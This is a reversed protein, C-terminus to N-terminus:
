TQVQKMGIKLKNIFRIITLSIGVAAEAWCNENKKLSKAAPIYEGKVCCHYGDCGFSRTEWTGKIIGMMFDSSKGSRMSFGKRSCKLSGKCRPDLDGWFGDNKERSLDKGM